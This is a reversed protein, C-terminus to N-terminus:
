VDCNHWWVKWLVSGMHTSVDCQGGLVAALVRCGHLREHVLSLVLNM